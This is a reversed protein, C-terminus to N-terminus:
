QETPLIIRFQTGVGKESEASIEGKHNLVIKQCLALGIGTGEFHEHANLRQFIKFIQKAYKTHFGIGNDKWVMEIHERDKNLPGTLEEPRM